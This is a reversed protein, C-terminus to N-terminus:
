NFNIIAEKPNKELKKYAKIADDMRYVKTDYKKVFNKLHKPDEIRKVNFPDEEIDGTANIKYGQLEFYLDYGYLNKQSIVSIGYGLSM